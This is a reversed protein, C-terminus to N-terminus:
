SPPWADPPAASARRPWSSRSIPPASSGSGSGAAPWAPSATARRSGLVIAECAQEVSLNVLMRAVSDERAACVIGTARVGADRLRVVASEVLGRAEATSLLPPVRLSPPIERVHVVVVESRLSGAM